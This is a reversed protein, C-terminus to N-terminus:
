EGFLPWLTVTKTIVVQWESVAHKRQGVFKWRYYYLTEEPGWDEWVIWEIVTPKLIYSFFVKTKKSLQLDLNM